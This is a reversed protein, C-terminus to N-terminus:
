NCAWDYQRISTKVTSVMWLDDADAKNVFGSIDYREIVDSQRFRAAQGTRVVLQTVHNGQKTRIHECLDLGAEDTEMVVDVIALAIAPLLQRGGLVRRAAAASECMHLRLPLNAYRVNRLALQTIRLVDPEDDVVLVDYHKRLFMPALRM